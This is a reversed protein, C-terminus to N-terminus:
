RNEDKMLPVDDHAGGALKESADRSSKAESALSVPREGDASLSENAVELWGAVRKLDDGSVTWSPIGCDLTFARMESIPTDYHSDMGLLTGMYYRSVFQGGPFRAPDQSVDYFEVLPLGHGHEEADEREYTSADNLGYREGPMVLHVRWKGTTLDGGHSYAAGGPVEDGFEAEYEGIDEMLEVYWGGLEAEGEVYARVSDCLEKAAMLGESLPRDANMWDEFAKVKGMIETAEEIDM